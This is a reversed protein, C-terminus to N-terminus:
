LSLRLAMRVVPTVALGVVVSGRSPSHAATDKPNTAAGGVPSPARHNRDGDCSSNSSWRSPFPADNYPQAHYLFAVVAESRPVCM